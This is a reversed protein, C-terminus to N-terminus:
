HDMYYYEGWLGMNEEKNLFNKIMNKRTKLFNISVKKIDHNITYKKRESKSVTDKNMLNEFNITKKFIHSKLTSRFTNNDDNKEITNTNLIPPM